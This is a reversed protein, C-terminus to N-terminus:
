IDMGRNMAAMQTLRDETANGGAGGTADIIPLYIKKAPNPMWITDFGDQEMIFRDMNQSHPFTRCMFMNEITLDGGWTLPIRWRLSLNTPLDRGTILNMFEDRSLNLFALEQISDELSEMFRRRLNKYQVFWDSAVHSKKPMIQVLPLDGMNMDAMKKEAAAQTLQM